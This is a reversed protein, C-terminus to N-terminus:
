FLKADLAVKYLLPLKRKILLKFNKGNLYYTLKQKVNIRLIKNENISKFITYINNDGINRLLESIYANMEIKYDGPWYHFIFSNTAKIKTHRSLVLSFSFQENLGISKIDTLKDFLELVDAVLHRNDSSLGIVGTNWMQSSENIHIERGSSLTFNRNNWYKLYYNWSRASIKGEKIYLLSDHENVLDFLPETKKLFIVDTDVFIMKGTFNNLFHNVVEVKARLFSNTGNLWKNITDHNVNIFRIPIHKELFAFKEEQDTYVVVNISKPFDGNYIKIYSLISYICQNNFSDGIAFFVLYNNLVSIM